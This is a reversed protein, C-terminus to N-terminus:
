KPQEWLYHLHTWANEGCSGRKQDVKRVEVVTSFWMPDLNESNELLYFLHNIKAVWLYVEM